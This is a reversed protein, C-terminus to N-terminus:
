DRPVINLLIATHGTALIRELWTCWRDDFGRARLIKLLSAWNVSDFAKRFNIKFVITPAKRTHCYRLLNAAYVINESIRRGSLFGTQDADVLSHIANQLRSTLVKTIGKMICNQLSIPRFQSPHTAADIKPLVLFDRNIRSLDVTGDYFSSFVERVDASVTDWFTSYFSPGFGDPGPSSLKNMASFAGRIEEPSFPASFSKPLPPTNPYLATLDFRWDPEVVTGLLGSFFHKLVVVKLGHDSVSENDLTLTAISNRWLRCTASAHFFKTNEGGELTYRIKARIKWYVSREKVSLHLADMTLSRLRAELHSLPRGEELIDLLNILIRCDKERQACPPTRRSWSM